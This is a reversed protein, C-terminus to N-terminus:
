GGGSGASDAADKLQLAVPQGHPTRAYADAWATKRREIERDSLLGQATVLRRLAALWHQYYTSGDDPDGRAQAAEIEEALAQSWQPWTFHGDAHLKVVLAFAEAQWPEAFVPEGAAPAPTAPMADGAPARTRDRPTLTTM